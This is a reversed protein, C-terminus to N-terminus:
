DSNESINLSKSFSSEYLRTFIDLFYNIQYTLNEKEKPFQAIEGSM